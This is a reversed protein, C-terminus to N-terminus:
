NILLSGGTHKSIQALLRNAKDLAPKYDCEAKEKATEAHKQADTWNNQALCLKVSFNHIDAQKLRYKCRNAIKLAENALELAEEHHERAHHLKALELLIDPEFELLNINRSRRLAENLHLEAEDLNGKACHAAGLLWDARIIDFYIHALKHAKTAFKLACALDDKLLANLTRYACVSGQFARDHSNRLKLAVILERDSEENRGLYALLRGLERRDFAEENKEKIEMDLEIARRLNAEAVELYGLPLQAVNALNGLSIALGKKNGRKEEMKAITQFLPLAYQPQGLYSYSIALLSLVSSQVGESKLRPLQTEGDPFFGQLLEVIKHFAGLEIYLADQLRVRFLIWAEDYRGSGITHHFLEIVSSLDDVSEVTEPTPIRAFYDRLQTHIREKNRLRDYCYSRVIPHLDYKHHEKDFLLLGRYILEQLVRNFAEKSSFTNFIAIADYGMPSRFAAIKNLFGQEDPDLSNYAIQLIHHERPKLEAIPNYERWKAIDGPYEPHERIVGSLLRLCLPHYGYPECAAQIEARTGEIGQAQFFVVADEKDMSKLELRRCGAIEDLEKPFLRTTILTKTQPYGASLWQLLKAVNPDICARFDQKEDEKIADGQYPSGLGAYARLVRELGDLILLFDSKHFINFLTQMKDWTSEIQKPNIKRRSVYSISDELFREFSSERDYFSWWIVGDFKGSRRSSDENLWYWALASKGIGGIGVLVLMPTPDKELWESLLSREEQRGTFNKQMPYPHAFYPSLTTKKVFRATEMKGEKHWHIILKSLHRDVIDKFNKAGNYNWALGEQRLRNRFRIVKEMQMLDNQTQPMFPEQNFYFMIRPWDFKKRCDFALNFEEETGSEAEGTPTGFRKWMIGVFIDYPEIQKNIIAQSREGMDPIVHTEWGVVELHFGLDHAISQNIKEALERLHQREKAVDSPSAAFIRVNRLMEVPRGEGGNPKTCNSLGGMKLLKPM